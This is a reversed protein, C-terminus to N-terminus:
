LNDSDLYITFPGQNVLQVDMTEGFSGVAVKDGLSARALAVFQEYLEESLQAPAAAQFSPRNGKKTDAFLTFQSVILVEGEVQKLSLNTKGELDEFIRLNEIKHWLKACSQSDDEYGVGLLILFGKGISGIIKEKVKVHASSVRQILARM